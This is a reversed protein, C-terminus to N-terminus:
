CLKEFLLRITREFPNNCILCIRFNIKVIINTYCKSCLTLHKCPMNVIERRNKTCILCVKEKNIKSSIEKLKAFFDQEHSESEFKKVQEATQKNLLLQVELEESIQKGKKYIEERKDDLRQHDEVLEKFNIDIENYNSLIVQNEEDKAKKLENFKANLIAKEQEVIQKFKDRAERVYQERSSKIQNIKDNIGHIEGEIKEKRILLESIQKDSAKIDIKKESIFKDYSNEKEKLAKELKKQENQLIHKKMIKEFYVKNEMENNKSQNLFKEVYNNGKLFVHNKEELFMIEKFNNAEFEGLQLWCSEEKFLNPEENSLYLLNKQLINKDLVLVAVHSIKSLFHGIYPTDKSILMLVEQTNEEIGKKSNIAVMQGTSLNKLLISLNVQAHNTTENLFFEGGLYIRYSKTSLNENILESFKEIPAYEDFEFWNVKFQYLGKQVLIMEFRDFDPGVFQFAFFAANDSNNIEQLKKTLEYQREELEKKPRDIELRELDNRRRLIEKRRKFALVEHKHKEWWDIQDSKYKGEVMRDENQM